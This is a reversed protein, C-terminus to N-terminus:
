VVPVIPAPAWALRAKLEGGATNNSLLRVESLRIEKKGISLLGHPLERLANYKTMLNGIDNGAAVCEIKKGSTPDIFEGSDTKAILCAFRM